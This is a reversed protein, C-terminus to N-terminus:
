SQSVQLSYTYLFLFHTNSIKQKKLNELEQDDIKFLVALRSM